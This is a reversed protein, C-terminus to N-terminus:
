GGWNRDGINWCSFNLRLYVQSNNSFYCPFLFQLVCSLFSFDCLFSTCCLPDTCVSLLFCYQHTPGCVPCTVQVRILALVTKYHPISNLGTLLLTGLCCFWRRKTQVSFFFSLSLSFLFSSVLSLFFFYSFLVFSPFKLPAKNLDFHFLLGKKM